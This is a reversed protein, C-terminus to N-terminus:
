WRSDDQVLYKKEIERKMPCVCKASPESWDSHSMALDKKLANNAWDSPEGNCSSIEIEMRNWLLKEKENEYQGFDVWM